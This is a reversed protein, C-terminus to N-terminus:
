KGLIYNYFDMTENAAKDWSFKKEQKIGKISMEKRLKENLIVCDLAEAISEASTPNFYYAANGGVEPLSSIDSTLVPTGFHMAELVPLGFGEYLSPYIFAEAHQYYSSLQEDNGTRFLVKDRVGLEDMLVCEKDDFDGGGFCVMKLENGCRSISFANILSEWNKYKKRGGVFLIYPDDLPSKDSRSDAFSNAEYIVRIKEDPVGYVEQLDKKTSNSVAIIGDAADIIKKKREQFDQAYGMKEEILDHVTIILKNYHVYDPLNYYTPHCIDYRINKSFLNILSNNLILKQRPELGYTDRVDIMMNVYCKLSSFDASNVNVGRFVDVNIGSKRVIRSILEFFYRTIGGNEQLSSIQHDYLISPSAIQHPHLLSTAVREQYIGHLGQDEYETMTICKCRLGVGLEFLQRKLQEESNKATIIIICCDDETILHNPSYVRVGDIANGQLETNNDVFYLADKGKQQLKKLFTRGRTGAGFIIIRDESNKNM